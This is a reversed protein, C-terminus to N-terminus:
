VQKCEVLMDAVASGNVMAEGVPPAECEVMGGESQRLQSIVSDAIAVNGADTYHGLDTLHEILTPNGRHKIELFIMKLKLALTPVAKDSKQKKFHIVKKYDENRYNTEDKGSQILELYAM